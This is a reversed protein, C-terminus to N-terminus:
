CELVKFSSTVGSLTYKKYEGIFLVCQTSNSVTTPAEMTCGIGIFNRELSAFFDTMPRQWKPYCKPGQSHIQSTMGDLNFNTRLKFAAPWTCHKEAARM